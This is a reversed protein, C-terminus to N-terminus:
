DYQFNTSKIPKNHRTLQRIQNIIMGFDSMLNQGVNMSREYDHTDEHYECDLFGNSNTYTHHKHRIHIKNIGKFSLLHDHYVWLLEECAEIFRYTNDNTIDEYNYLVDADMLNNDFMYQYAIKFKSTLQGRLPPTPPCVYKDWTWNDANILYKIARIKNDEAPWLTLIKRDRNRLLDHNHEHCM